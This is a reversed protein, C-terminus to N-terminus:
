RTELERLGASNRQVIDLVERCLAGPGSPNLDCIEQSVEPRLFDIGILKAGGALCGDLLPGGIALCQQAMREPQPNLQYAAEHGVGMACHMGLPGAEDLCFQMSVAVDKDLSRVLTRGLAVMCLNAAYGQLTPCQAYADSLEARSLPGDLQDVHAMVAGEACTERLGDPFIGPCRDAADFPDSLANYLAHGIAHACGDVATPNLPRLLDCMEAGGQEIEEVTRSYGWQEEAGHLLGGGCGGSATSLTKEIGLVETAIRGVVHSVDHCRARYADSAIADDHIREAAAAIDGALALKVARLQTCAVQDGDSCMLSLTQNWGTLEEPLEPAGGDAPWLAFLAVASALVFAVGSALLRRMVHITGLIVQDAVTGLQNDGGAPM